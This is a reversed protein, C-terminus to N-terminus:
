TMSSPHVKHHAGPETFILLFFQMRIWAAMKLSILPPFLFAISKSWKRVGWGWGRPPFLSHTNERRRSLSHTNETRWPAVAAVVSGERVEEDAASDGGDMDSSAVSRKLDETTSTRHFFGLIQFFDWSSAVSSTM